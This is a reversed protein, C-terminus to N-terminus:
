NNNEMAVKRVLKIMTKGCSRMMNDIDVMKKFISNVTPTQVAKNVESKLMVINVSIPISMPSIEFLSSIVVSVAKVTLVMINNKELVIIGISLIDGNNALTADNLGNTTDSNKSLLANINWVLMSM